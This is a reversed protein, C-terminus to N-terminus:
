RCSASSATPWRGRPSPWGWIPWGPRSGTLPRFCAFREFLVCVWVSIGYPTGEFLRAVPPATVERPSSACECSRLWRPRVIERIYAEVEVEVVTTTREGNAVHPKGCRPCVRADKPPNRKESRKTLNSRQARGHGPAGRQQGRKRGTGPKKQRESKRGFMSRSLVKGTARLKELQTQLTEIRSALATKEAELERVEARLGANKGRLSAILETARVTAARLRDNRERLWAITRDRAEM